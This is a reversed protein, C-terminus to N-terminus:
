VVTVMWIIRIVIKGEKKQTKSLPNKNKPHNPPVVTQQAHLLLMEKAPCVDGQHLNLELTRNCSQIISPAAIISANGTNDRIAM